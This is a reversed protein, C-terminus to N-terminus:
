YGNSIRLIYDLCTVSGFRNYVKVYYIASDDVGPSGVYSYPGIGLYNTCTDKYLEFRYLDSPNSAFYIQVHFTDSGGGPDVDQAYFKYWDEDGAPVINGTVDMASSPDDTFTGLDESLACIDGSGAQDYSDEQCECGDANVGNVDYWTADCSSIVCTGSSCEATAHPLNCPTADAKNPNDCSDTEENCSDDTCQNGDDCNIPTGSQCGSVGECTEAGNCWQGDDCLSGEDTSGDCNNDKGDCVESNGPFMEYDSDDCDCPDDCGPIPNGFGDCVDWGDGDGDVCPPITTTTTSTTTTTTHLDELASVRAGLEDFEERTIEPVHQGGGPYFEQKDVVKEFDLGTERVEIDLYHLQSNDLYLSTIGGLLIDFIGDDIVGIFTSDWVKDQIFNYITINLDGSIPNGSTDTVVGQLSILHPTPTGAVPTCYQENNLGNIHHQEIEDPTLVRNYVAVEDIVGNFYYGGVGWAGLRVPADAYKMGDNNGATKSQAEGDIYMIMQTPTFTVAVYYWVGTQAVLDAAAYVEADQSYACIKNAPCHQRNIWVGFDGDNWGSTDKNFIAQIGSISNFKVWFEVTGTTLDFDTPSGFDVYDDVGDFSYATGVQGPQNITAGYNAGNNADYSDSATTESTEDLKWYSVMGQTHDKGCTPVDTAMSSASGISILSIVLISLIFGLITKRM